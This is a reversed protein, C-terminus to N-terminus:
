EGGSGWEGARGSEGGIEFFNNFVVSVRTGVPVIAVDPRNVIESDAKNARQSLRQSMPKFFGEVAAALVNPKNAKTNFTQSSFGDNSIVMSSQSQNQNFVEGARGAAGLLGILIDQQAIAKGKDSISKATLPKNNQGRILITNKPIAQQQIRGASDKYVVAVVTQKVLKNIKSVSKIETILITGKSLAIRKDISLVDEQLEVAFREQNEDEPNWIIPVLVSAEASTGIQVQIPSNTATITEQSSLAPTRNLIGLEGPTPIEGQNRNLKNSPITSLASVKDQEKNSANTFIVSSSDNESNDPTNKIESIESENPLSQAQEFTKSDQTWNNNSLSTTQQGSTALQNWREFPDIKEVTKLVRHSSTKVVTNKPQIKNPVRERIIKPPSQVTERIIRPPSPVKERIIKPKSPKPTRVTRVSKNPKPPPPTVPPSEEIDRSAQNRLALEAKLRAAEDSEKYALVTPTSELVPAKVVPKPAFFISWIMWGSVMVSGVLLSAIAFRILPNESGSQAEAQENDRKILFEQDILAVQEPQYGSIELEEEPTLEDVVSELNYNEQNNNM